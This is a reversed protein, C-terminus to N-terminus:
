AEARAPLKFATWLAIGWFVLTIPDQKLGDSVIDLMVAPPTLLPIALGEAALQVNAFHRVILYESGAMALLTIAVSAVQFTMGRGGRGGFVVGAGVLFGVGIALLGLQYHTLAVVLYWGFAAVLAACVGVALAGALNGAESGTPEIAHGTVHSSQDM